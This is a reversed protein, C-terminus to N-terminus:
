WGIQKSIAPTMGGLEKFRQAFYEGAEGQLMPSGSPAFRWLEAMEYQSTADIKQKIKEDM